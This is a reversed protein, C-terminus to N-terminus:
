DNRDDEALEALLRSIRLGQDISPDVEFQLRPTYKLRVARGVAAQLRPAARALAEATEARETETGMASYYVTANRLDPAVEAGTITVFGIGPDTLEAIEDAVIERVSENVKRRWASPQGSM